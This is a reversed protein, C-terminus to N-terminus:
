APRRNAKWSRWRKGITNSLTATGSTKIRTVSLIKQAQRLSAGLIGTLAKLAILSQQLESIRVPLQSARADLNAVSRELEGTRQALRAVEDTVETQFAARAWRYVLWARLALVGAVLALIAGISILILLVTVMEVM